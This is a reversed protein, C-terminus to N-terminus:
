PLNDRAVTHQIPRRNKDKGPLTTSDVSDRYSGLASHRIRGNLAGTRRGKEVHKKRCATTVLFVADLLSSVADALTDTLASARERLRVVTFCFIRTKSATCLSCRSVLPSTRLDKLAALVRMAVEFIPEHLSIAAGRRGRISKNATCSVAEGPTALDCFIPCPELTISFCRKVLFTTLM